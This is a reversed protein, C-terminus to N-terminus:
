LIHDEIITHHWSIVHVLQLKLRFLHSQDTAQLGQAVEHVVRVVIIRSEGEKDM